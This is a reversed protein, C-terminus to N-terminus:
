KHLSLGGRFQSFQSLDGRFQSFQSLGGRFQSFQSLGGRFQSPDSPWQDAPPQSLQRHRSNRSDSSM